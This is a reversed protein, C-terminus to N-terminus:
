GGALRRLFPMLAADTAAPAQLHPSHGCDPIMLGTALGAPAGGPQDAGIGAVIAEVQAPSGYEDGDGQMILSPCGIAGLRGTMEWARFQPTLWTDSWGHFAGDTNEGHYRALRARMGKPDTLTTEYLAVADRIGAITIDEVFVHAAMTAIGAIRGGLAAAALLAITGGDSHGVLLAEGVGAHDLVQPLVVESERNLYDIPRPWRDLPSSGGYGQRDYALVDLGTARAIRQPFDRWLEFCGLGEHLLVVTPRRMATAGAGAVAPEAVAHHVRLRMGAVDLHRMEFTM